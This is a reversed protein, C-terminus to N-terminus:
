SPDTDPMGQKLLRQELMREGAPRQNKHNLLRKKLDSATFERSAPQEQRKERSRQVKRGMREITLKRTVSRYKFAFSISAWVRCM